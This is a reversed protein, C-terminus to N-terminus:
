LRELEARVRSLVEDWDGRARQTFLRMNPYWPTDDRDRLWRWCGAFRNLLWVRKGMAAALHAVSTDAAIVLDLNDILAATDAFDRVEDMWDIIHGAFAPPLKKADVEAKQLSIWQVGRYSLLPALADPAISRRGDVLSGTHGGAWALGIRPSKTDGLRTKWYRARQPEAHLYPIPAPITEVRTGFLMPLSMLSCYHTWRSLDDPAADLLEIDPMSQAFLQRLPAPCVYGIRAFRGAALTLYRCFQLADGFGQEHLVLLRTDAPLAGASWRPLPLETEGIVPFRGADTSSIWRHEFFPWAEDYRGAALLAHGLNSHAELNGPELAIAHEFHAIGANLDGLDKLVTGLNNHGGANGAHRALAERYSAAAAEPQQGLQHARGLNYWLPSTPLDPFHQAAMRLGLQASRIAAAYDRVDTQAASLSNCSIPHPSAEVARTLWKLADHPAGRKLDVLGRLHLADAHRPHTAIIRNILKSAIDFAGDNFARLARDFLPQAKM